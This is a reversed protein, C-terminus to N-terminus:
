RGRPSAGSRAESRGHPVGSRGRPRGPWTRASRPRGGPSRGPSPGRRSMGSGRRSRIRLSIRVCRLRTAAARPQVQSWARRGTHECAHCRRFPSMPGWGRLRPRLPAAGLGPPATRIPTAHQHDAQRDGRRQDAGLDRRRSRGRSRGPRGGRVRRAAGAAGCGGPGGGRVPGGTGLACGGGAQGRGPVGVGGAGAAAPSWM